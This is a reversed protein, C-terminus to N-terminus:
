ALKATDARGTQRDRYRAADLRKAGEESASNKQTRRESNGSKTQQKEKEWSFVSKRSGLKRGLERELGHLPSVREKTDEIGAWFTRHQAILALVLVLVCLTKHPLRRTAQAM